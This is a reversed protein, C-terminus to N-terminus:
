SHIGTCSKISFGTVAAAIERGIDATHANDSPNGASDAPEHGADTVQTLSTSPHRRRRRLCDLAANRAIQFLWTSFKAKKERFEPNRMHRYARVFVDQAVDQAETADAIMRYVFNLVPRKYCAMIKEFARDDGAQIRTVLRWDATKDYEESTEPPQASGSLSKRDVKM